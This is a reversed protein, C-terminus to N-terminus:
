FDKRYRGGRRELDAILRDELLEIVADFNERLLKRFEARSMSSGTALAGSLPEAESLTNTAPASAANASGQQARHGGISGSFKRQITDAGGSGAAGSSAVRRRLSETADDFDTTISMPAGRSPRPAAVPRLRTSRMIEGIETARREEASHRDDDFFRPAPSPNAVHTLEHAIIGALEASPTGASPARALHIVDGTTAAVKDVAALAQRSARGTSIRPTRDAVIVDAISRFQVPLPRAREQRHRGLETMFRDALDPERALSHATTAVRAAAPRVAAVALTSTAGTAPDTSTSRQLRPRQHLAPAGLATSFLSGPGAPVWSESTRNEPTERVFAAPAVVGLEDALRQPGDVVRSAPATSGHDDPVRRAVIAVEQSNPGSVRLDDLLRARAAPARTDDVTVDHAIAPRAAASSSAAAAAAVGLEDSVLARGHIAADGGADGVPAAARALAAAASPTPAVVGLEDSVLARGHIAADGDADEVPAAARALAAAASTTPAVVGLEDLLSDWGGMAEIQSLLTDIDALSAPADVTPAVPDTAVVATPVPRRQVVVARGISALRQRGASAITAPTIRGAVAAPEAAAREVAGPTSSSAIRGVIATQSSANPMEATAQVAPAATHTLGFQPRLSRMFTVSELLPGADAQRRVARGDITRAVSRRLVTSGVVVAREAIGAATTARRLVGVASTRLPAVGARVAAGFRPAADRDGPTTRPLPTSTARRLSDPEAAAVSAPASAVPQPTPQSPDAITVGRPPLVATDAALAVDVKREITAGSSAVADVAFPPTAPADALAARGTGTISAASTIPPTADSLFESTILPREMTAVTARAQPSGPQPQPLRHEARLVARRLPSASPSAASSASPQKPKPMAWDDDATAPPVPSPGSAIPVTNRALKRRLAEAVDMSPRQATGSAPQRAVSTGGGGGSDTIGSSAVTPLETASPGGFRTPAVTTTVQPAAGNAVGGPSTGPGAWTRGFRRPTLPLGRRVVRRAAAVPPTQQGAPVAAADGSAAVSAPAAAAAPSPTKAKLVKRRLAEVLPDTKRPPEAKRSPEAPAAGAAVPQADRVRGATTSRTASSPNADVAVETATDPWPWYDIPPRVSRTDALLARNQQSLGLRMGFGRSLRLLQGPRPRSLPRVLSLQPRARATIERGIARGVPESARPPSDM